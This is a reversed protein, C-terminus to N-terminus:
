TASRGPPLERRAPQHRQDIADLVRDAANRNRDSRTGAPTPAPQDLAGWHKALASLTLTVNPWRSRYEECRLWLEGPTANADRLEKLARNWAGRESDTAPQAGTFSVFTDWLADRKRPAPPTAKSPGGSEDRFITM